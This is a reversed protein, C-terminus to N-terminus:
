KIRLDPLLILFCHCAGFVSHEGFCFTDGLFLFFLKSSGSCVAVNNKVRFYLLIFFGGFVAVLSVVLSPREEITASEVVGNFV